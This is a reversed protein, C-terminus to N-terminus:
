QLQKEVVRVSKKAENFLTTDVGGMLYSIVWGDDFIEYELLCSDYQYFLKYSDDLEYVRRSFNTSDLDFYYADNRYTQLYPLAIGSALTDLYDLCLDGDPTLIRSWYLSDFCLLHIECYKEQSSELVVDRSNCWTSELCWNSNSVYELHLKRTTPRWTRQQCALLITASLFILIRIKSM